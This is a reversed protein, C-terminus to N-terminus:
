PRFHRPEWSLFRICPHKIPTGGFWGNKYPNGNYVMWKPTDRIRPFGWMKGPSSITSFLKPNELLYISPYRPIMPNSQNDFYSFVHKAKVILCYPLMWAPATAELIWRELELVTLLPQSFAGCPFTVPRKWPILQRRTMLTFTSSNITSWVMRSTHVADCFWVSLSRLVRTQWIEFIFFFFFM